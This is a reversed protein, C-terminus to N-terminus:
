HLHIITSPDWAVERATSCSLNPAAIRDPTQLDWCYGQQRSTGAALQWMIAYNDRGLYIMRLAPVIPSSVPQLAGPTSVGPKIIDGGVRPSLYHCLHHTVCSPTFFSCPHNNSLFINISCSVCAIMVLLHTFNIIPLLLHSVIVPLHHPGEM